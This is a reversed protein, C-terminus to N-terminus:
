WNESPDRTCRSREERAEDRLTTQIGVLSGLSRSSRFPEQSRRRVPKFRRAPFAKDKGVDDDADSRTARFLTRLLGALGLINCGDRDRRRSGQLAARDYPVVITTQPAPLQTVLHLETLPDRDRALSAEALSM